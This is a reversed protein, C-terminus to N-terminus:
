IEILDHEVGKGADLAKVGDEIFRQNQSSYFPDDQAHRKERYAAAIHGQIGQSRRRHEGRVRRRVDSICALHTFVAAM